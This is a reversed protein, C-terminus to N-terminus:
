TSPGCVDAVRVQIVCGPGGQSRHCGAQEHLLGREQPRNNHHLPLDCMRVQAPVSCPRQPRCQGTPHRRLQPPLRSAGIQITSVPRGPHQDVLHPAGSSLVGNHKIASIDRMCAPQLPMRQLRQLSWGLRGLCAGPATEAIPRPWLLGLRALPQDGPRGKARGEPEVTHAM